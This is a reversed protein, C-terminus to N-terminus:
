QAAASPADRAHTLSAVLELLEAVDFPKRIVPLGERMSAIARGTMSASVVVVPIAVIGELKRRDRLFDAGNVRPMQWDLLILEPRLGDGLQELADLGDFATVVEYGEERLMTAVTERIIADDEVVLLTTM